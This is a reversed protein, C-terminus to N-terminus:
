KEIWVLKEIWDLGIKRNLRIKFAIWNQIWDLKGVWDSKEIWDLKGIWDSKCTLDLYMLSEVGVWNQFWVWHCNM